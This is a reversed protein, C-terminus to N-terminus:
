FYEKSTNLEISNLERGGAVHGLHSTAGDGMKQLICFHQVVNHKRKFKSSLVGGDMILASKISIHDTANNYTRQVM